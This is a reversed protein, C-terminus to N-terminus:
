DEGRAAGAASDPTAEELPKASLMVKALWGTTLLALVFCVGFLVIPGVQTATELEAIGGAVQLKKARIAM